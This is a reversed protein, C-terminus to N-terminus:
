FERSHCQFENRRVDLDSLEEDTLEGRGEDDTLKVGLSVGVAFRECLYKLVRDKMAPTILRQKEMM